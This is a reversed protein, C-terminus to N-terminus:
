VQLRFRKKYQVPRASELVAMLQPFRGFRECHNVLLQIREGRTMESDFRDHVDRFHQRCLLDFETEDFAEVLFLRTLVPDFIV